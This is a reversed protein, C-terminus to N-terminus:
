SSRRVRRSSRTATAGCSDWVDPYGMLWRALAPNLVGRRETAASSQSQATGTVQRALLANVPVDANQCNGDKWDRTTPTAWGALYAVEPLQHFCKRSMRPRGATNNSDHPAPCNPTPWGAVRAATRLDMGGGRAPQCREHGVSEADAVWWLRQRIHPAGVSHAGLVASGCAYGEGELDTFVGDLWGLRVAADVQEGFVVDPKCERVLRFMDPWLHRKDSTGQRKGAASFPQCPCSGTWVPRDDPWGALRLAYSWGGIGAFLHVQTYPRLEDPKVDQIDRKDVIGPAIHGEKILERLWAAAFPDHENYYAQNM